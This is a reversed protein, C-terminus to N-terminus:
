IGLFPQKLAQVDAKKEECLLKALYKSACCSGEIGEGM